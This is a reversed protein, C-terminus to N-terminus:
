VYGFLLDSCDILILCIKKVTELIIFNLIISLFDHSAGGGGSSLKRCMQYKTCQTVCTFPATSVCLVSPITPNWRATGLSPRWGLRECEWASITIASCCMCTFDKLCVEGWNIGM